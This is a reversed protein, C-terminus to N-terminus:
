GGALEAIIEGRREISRALELQAAMASPHLGFLGGPLVVVATASEVTVHDPGAEITEIREWRILVHEDGPGFVSVGHLDVRYRRPRRLVGARVVQEAVRLQM